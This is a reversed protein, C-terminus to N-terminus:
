GREQGGAIRSTVTCRWFLVKFYRNRPSLSPTTIRHVTGSMVVCCSAWIHWFSPDDGGANGGVIFVLRVAAQSAIFGGGTPISSWSSEPSPCPILSVAQIYKGCCLRNTTPRSSPLMMITGAVCVTISWSSWPLWWCYSPITNKKKKHLKYAHVSLITYILNYATNM